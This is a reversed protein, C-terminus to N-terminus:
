DDKKMDQLCEFIEIADALWNDKVMSLDITIFIMQEKYDLRIFEGLEQTCDFLKVGDLTQSVDPKIAFEIAMQTVKSHAVYPKILNKLYMLQILDLVDDPFQGFRDLLEDQLEHYETKTHAQKMKKYIEIKLSADSIYSDPIHRDIKVGIQVEKEPATLLEGSTIAVGDQENQIADRLMRTYLDLGVTDIFGNQRAGLMDGAGRIALDRMAIKFGSGLGTFEKITQLRKESNETLTYDKPYLFYAYAIKDSRGVRGRLQYMQSLGLRYSDGIILTNANPIDIGTEIITTCVLVNFRKDEFDEMVSELNQKDMRGHACRVTAEPVLKQVELVLSEIDHVRNHLYFVQGGRSIEREIADKVIGDHAELVYTQVPYRNEPPTEILSLGRIGIMSMQLTRPIPTATLTLVDIETKLQKVKEKHKVGFRQEEDIILLGLDKYSIKRSLVKHTGILIDIKGSALDSIISTVERVSTYRNLLAINVAFDKCRERFSKFQQKSLITTPALYVVQKHDLVAKFAARMAVETKGYGVDGILLRDMPHPSEMDKKIEATTKLQDETEVFSCADEFERQLSNDQSFAYGPLFKRKSYIRVLEAAIDKVTTQVKAKTAAWDKGGLRSMKPVTGESGVFKGILDIKDVPLYLKDNNHYVMTLVDQKMGLTELTETGLYRGIGHDVHVIYDGINLENYDKVRQSEKLTAKYRSRKTTTKSLEYDSYVVINNSPLEFGSAFSANIVHFKGPFIEELHSPLIASIGWEELQNVIFNRQKMNSAAIFVTAQRKSLHRCESEFFAMNGHFESVMKSQFKIHVVQNANEINTVQDTIFVQKAGCTAKFEAQLPIEPLMEGNKVALEYWSAIETEGDKVNRVIKDYDAYVLTADPVFDLITAPNEYIMPLYKHMLDLDDFGKLKLLDDEATPQAEVSLQDLVEEFKATDDSDYVFEYLLSIKTADIRQTSRQSMSDFLRITEIEDDFFEIRVPQDQEKPFIDFIGGRVSFDGINEVTTVSQYGLCIARQRLDDMDVIDGINLHIEAKKLINIPTLFRRLAAVNTIVIQNPNEMLSTLTSLRELRLDASSSLLNATIFEDMLFLCVKENTFGILSEYFRHAEHINKTVVILPQNTRSKIIEFLHTYLSLTVGSLLVSTRDQILERLLKSIEDTNTLHQDLINM